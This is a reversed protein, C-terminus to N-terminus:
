SLGLTERWITLLLRSVPAPPERRFREGPGLARGDASLRVRFGWLGDRPAGPFGYRLDDFEVTTGDAREVRPSAEGMAFWVFLRAAPTARAAAVEPGSPQTFAEWAIPRRRLANAFGVRVEDGRHAVVRRYPLQLLTPYAAVRAPVFGGAELQRRAEGELRLNLALGSGLYLSSLALVAWGARRAVTSTVGARWGVAIGAALVLSYVPDIIAVADLAFRRSSFPALLQTGYSTCLDLLPHSLLALVALGIWARLAGGKLRALGYGVLPGVVPAVWLAHTVGRHWRWEAFPGTASALIDVDPAMGLAAGWFLARRGLARGGLAQGCAAGLLGHTLPDM